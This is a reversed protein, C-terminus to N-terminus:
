WSPKFWLVTNFVNHFVIHIPIFNMAQYVTYQLFVTNGWLWLQFDTHWAPTGESAVTVQATTLNQSGGYIEKIRQLNHRKHEQFLKLCVEQGRYAVLIAVKSWCILIFFKSLFKRLFFYYQQAEPQESTIKISRKTGDWM